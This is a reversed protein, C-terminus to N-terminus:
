LASLRGECFEVIQEACGILREAERRTYSGHPSGGPLADPYRTPIYAKDLEAAADALGDPITERTALAALLESVAHGWADAGLRQLVAKVAKEAAQQSSFCAWEYFAQELDMRAHALDALAQNMWDASREAM